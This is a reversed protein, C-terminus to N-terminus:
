GWMWPRIVSPANVGSPRNWGMGTLRVSSGNRRMQSFLTKAAQQEVGVADLRVEDGLNREQRCLPKLTSWLTRRGAPSRGPM